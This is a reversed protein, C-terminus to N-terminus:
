ELVFKKEVYTQTEMKRQVGMARQVRGAWGGQGGEERTVPRQTDSGGRKVALETVAAARQTGYLFVLNSFM